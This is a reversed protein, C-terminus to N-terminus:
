SATKNIKKKTVKITAKYPMPGLNFTVSIEEANNEKAAMALKECLKIVEKHILLSVDCEAECEYNKLEKEM